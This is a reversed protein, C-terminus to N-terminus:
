VSHYGAFVSAARKDARRPLPGSSSEALDLVICPVVTEIITARCPLHWTRGM